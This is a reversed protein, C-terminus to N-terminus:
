IKTFIKKTKVKKIEGGAIVYANRKPDFYYSVRLVSKETKNRLEKLNKYKKSGHLVDTYPRPLNPGINELSLGKLYQLKNKMKWLILGNKTNM